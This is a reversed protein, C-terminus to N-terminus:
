QKILKANNYILGLFKPFMIKLNIINIIISKNYLIHLLKIKITKLKM